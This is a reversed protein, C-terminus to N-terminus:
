DRLEIQWNAEQIKTDLERHAKALADAQDQLEAVNVTSIFRVESKTFRDQTVTAAEALERYIVHKLRIVDRQAIADSLTMGETLQTSSNTANIRQILRLLENAIREMEQLLAAPNEAPEDGEQAKAVRIVRQKLQELRKQYDARLILAEALKM